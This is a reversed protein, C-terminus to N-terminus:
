RREGLEHKAKELRVKLAAPTPHKTRFDKWKKDADGMAKEVEDKNGHYFALAGHVQELSLTPFCHAIAEAPVGNKYEHVVVELPVRSGGIYFTEDRREIYDRAM